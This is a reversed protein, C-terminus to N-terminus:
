KTELPTFEQQNNKNEYLKKNVQDDPKITIRIRTRIIGHSYLTNQLWKAMYFAHPWNSTQDKPTVKGEGLPVKVAVESKGERDARVIQDIIYNDVIKVTTASYQGVNPQIPLYDFNFSILAMLILILPTFIKIEKYNKLLYSFSISTIALFFFIVAWMADIRGAYGAGAKLYACILYVITIVLCVILIGVQHIFTEIIRDAHNKRKGVIVIALAAIIMLIFLLLVKTDLEKILNNLSLLTAMLRSKFSGGNVSSVGAARRGHLDFLISILWLFCIVFYIKSTRIIEKVGHQKVIINIIMTLCYSALIISLQPSSFIAFYIAVIFMGKYLHTQKEWCKMFKEKTMMSLVISANLLGPIIYHFYCDFDTAWFGSYSPSNIHKFLFFFSLFLFLEGCIAEKFSLEFKRKLFSSFIYLLAVIFLSVVITQTFMISYVYNRTIPYICFSAISGVIPGIVEPLVKSPNFVGWLPFPLRMTGLFSWDDADFPVLPTIQTFYVFLFLFLVIQIIINLLRKSKIM